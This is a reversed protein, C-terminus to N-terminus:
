DALPRLPRLCATSYALGGHTRNKHMNKENNNNRIVRDVLFYKDRYIESSLNMRFLVFFNYFFLEELYNYCIKILFGEINKFLRCIFKRYVFKICM